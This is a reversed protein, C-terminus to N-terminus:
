PETIFGNLTEARGDVYDFAPHDPRREGCQGDIAADSKSEHAAAAIQIQAADQNVIEAVRKGIDGDDDPAIMM